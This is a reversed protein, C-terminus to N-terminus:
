LLSTSSEKARKRCTRSIYPPLEVRDLCRARVENTVQVAVAQTADVVTQQQARPMYCASLALGDVLLGVVVLAPLWQPLCVLVPRGGPADQCRPATAM